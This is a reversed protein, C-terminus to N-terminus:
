LEVPEKVRRVEVMSTHADTTATSYTHSYTYRNKNIETNALDQRAFRKQTWWKVVGPYGNLLVDSLEESGIFLWLLLVYYFADYYDYLHIKTLVRLTWKTPQDSDRSVLFPDGNGWWDSEKHNFIVNFYSCLGFRLVCFVTTQDTPLFIDGHKFPLIQKSTTTKQVSSCANSGTGIPKETEPNKSRNKMKPLPNLQHTERMRPKLFLYALYAEEFIFM